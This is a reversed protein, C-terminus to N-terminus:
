KLRSNPAYNWLFSPRSKNKYIRIEELVFVLDIRGDMEISFRSTVSVSQCFLAIATLREQIYADRMYFKFIQQNSNNPM